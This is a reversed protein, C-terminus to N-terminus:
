GIGESVREEKLGSRSITKARVELERGIYDTAQTLAMHGLLLHPRQIEECKNGLTEKPTQAEHCRQGAAPMRSREPTPQPLLPPSPIYTLTPERAADGVQAIELGWM